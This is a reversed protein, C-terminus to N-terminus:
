KTNLVPDFQYSDTLSVSFDIHQKQFFIVRLYWTAATFFFATAPRIILAFTDFNISLSDLSFSTCQKITVCISKQLAKSYPSGFVSKCPRWNIIFPATLIMIFIGLYLLNLFVGFVISNCKKSTFALISYLILNKAWLDKSDPSGQYM